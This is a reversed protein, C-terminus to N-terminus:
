HDHSNDETSDKIILRRGEMQYSLGLAQLVRSLPQNRNIEENYTRTRSVQIDFDVDYWRGLQQMVGSLDEDEFHFYGNKWALAGATDVHTQLEWRRGQQITVAEFPQLVRQTVGDSVRVKGTLLTTSIRETGKYATVTFSTGLVDIVKGEVKVRFPQSPSRAVEFYAEGTLEVERTPGTFSTAYRLSSANNLWAKTGDPLQVMFQGARPTELTHMGNGSSGNYVLSSKDQKLARAGSNDPIAGNGISDLRIRRGDALLLIAKDGGPTIEALPMKIDTKVLALDKQSSPWLLYGGIVLVLLALGGGIIRRAQRQSARKRHILGMTLELNKQTDVAPARQLVRDLERREDETLTNALYKNILLKIREEEM